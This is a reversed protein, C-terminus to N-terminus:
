TICAACAHEARRAIGHVDLIKRRDVRLIVLRGGVNRGGITRNKKRARAIALLHDELGFPKRAIARAITRGM